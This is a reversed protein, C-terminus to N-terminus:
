FIIKCVNSILYIETKKSIELSYYKNDKFRLIGTKTINNKDIITLTSGIKFNDLIDM